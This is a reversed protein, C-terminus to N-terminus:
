KEYKFEIMTKEALDIIQDLKECFGLQCSNIEFISNKLKQANEKILKASNYFEPDAKGIYTEKINAPIFIAMCGDENCGKYLNENMVEKIKFLQNYIIVKHGPMYM